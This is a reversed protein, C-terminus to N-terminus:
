IFYSQGCLPDEENLHLCCGMYERRKREMWGLIDGFCNECIQIDFKTGDRSSRYGWMAELTAYESTYDDTCNKACVDCYVNDEIKKTVKKYTKM